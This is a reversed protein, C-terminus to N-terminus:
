KRKINAHMNFARELKITFTDFSIGEDELLYYGDDTGDWGFNNHVYCEKYKFSGGDLNAIMYGDIIWSHGDDENKSDDGRASAEVLNGNNISNYISNWNFPTLKDCQMGVQGLVVEIANINTSTAYCKHKADAKDGIWKMLFGIQNKLQRSASRDICPQKKLMKWDVLQGNISLKPEYYALAHAIAVVGCGAPCRYDYAADTCGKQELKCNYPYGQGWKVSLEPFKKKSWELQWGQLEMNLIEKPKLEGSRSQVINKNKATNALSDKITNFFYAQKLCAHISAEKLLSIIQYQEYTKESTANPVFALIRATRIDGSVLAYGHKDDKDMQVYYIPISDQKQNESCRSVGGLCVNQKSIIKLDLKGETSRSPKPSALESFKEVSKLVASESLQYNDLLSVREWYTLTDVSASPTQPDVCLNEPNSCAAMSMLLMAAIVNYVVQKM